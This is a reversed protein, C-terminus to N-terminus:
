VVSPRSTVLEIFLKEIVRIYGASDMLPSKKMMGRLNKRLIALLEWDGALAVARKIYEDLSDAALEDLGVNKLISLGFRTGHRDGYRSVVPVGMYLTTCTTVGGTYPFTDLAIDVDGYERLYDATYGRMEVRALDIGFIKLREGVFNKGDSTDFIKNKLLLRSNPVADLIKKWTRLISDTVKGFENFSGFTVYGKAICPPAVAPELSSTPEYCIHSRPLVIIKETFYKASDGACYIDSLFYDFCDLGTSNMYGVGSIQIPAPRYTAIRLRNDPTHGALDILIDIEDNHIMQAAQSDTLDSINRWVNVRERIFKTVVDSKEVVSYCYVEFSNKDLQTILSWSWNIVSHLSFNGSLYGVRIKKHSYFRKPYPKIDALYKKYKDYLEQFDNASFNEANCASFIAGSLKKCAEHNDEALEAAACFIKIAKEPMALLKYATGLNELADSQLSYDVQASSIRLFNKIAAIERVYNHVERWICAELQYAKRYNPAVRKVEDLIKLATDYNKKSYPELAQSYIEWIDM